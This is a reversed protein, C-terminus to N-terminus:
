AALVVQGGRDPVLTVARRRPRESPGVTEFRGNTVLTQLVVEMEVQAFAAGICRRIGGGFPIWAYGTPAADGLFREPAFADPQPYLDPRRHMLYISVAVTQGAPVLWGALEFDRMLKRVVIQVVPRLRLTEKVVADTFASAGTSAEATLRELVEPRRGMREFAWALGTATTEHGAFLLTLLEDRLEADSMPEGDEDRALLLMSLVDERQELDPAARRERILRFLEADLPDMVSRRGAVVRPHDPGALVQKVLNRAQGFWDVVSSLVVRLRELEGRESVGFVARMIVELTIAQTHERLAFPVGRPMLELQRETADRMVDRYAQMREGHFPPLLLRRQRLHAAEDVCLISHQGLTPKLIHNAEGAHVEHAGARFITAVADPDAVMVWPTGPDIHLSFIDGYRRQWRRMTPGPRLIWPPLQGGRPLPTGPPRGTRLAPADALHGNSSNPALAPTPM